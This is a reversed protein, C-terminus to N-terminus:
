VLDSWSFSEIAVQQTDQNILKLTFGKSDMRVKLGDLKLPEGFPNTEHIVKRLLVPLYSAIDVDGCSVILVGPSAALPHKKNDWFDQDRTLLYRGLQKAKRYHFRDDQQRRLEPDEAIWLVDMDSRRLHEVVDREIHNDAYIRWKCKTYAGV